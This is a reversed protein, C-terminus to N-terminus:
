QGRPKIAAAGKDLVVKQYYEGAPVGSAAVDALAKDVEDRMVEIPLAGSVIKGNVFMTPTGTVGFRGMVEMDTAVASACAEGTRDAEFRKGDLKLQKALKVLAEDGFLSTDRTSVFVDFAAWLLDRYEVYKGQKAAACAALHAQQVTGPHVVFHKYVVRIQGPYAKMLEDFTATMRRCYPCAFDFAEVITVPATAPGESPSGDVPVAYRVEPDPTARGAEAEEKIPRLWADLEDRELSKAELAAVRAELMALKAEADLTGKQPTAACGAFAVAFAGLLSTLASSRSM